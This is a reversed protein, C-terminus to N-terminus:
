EDIGSGELVDFANESDANIGKANEGIKELSKMIDNMLAQQREEEEKKQRAFEELEKAKQEALLEEESKKPAQVQSEAASTGNIREEQSLQSKRINEAALAEDIALKELREEELREAERAKAIRAEEEIRQQEEIEDLQDKHAKKLLLVLKIINRKQDSNPELELYTTYSDVADGYMEMEVEVNAMNLYAEPIYDSNLEIVSKFSDHSNKYEGLQQYCNGIKLFFYSLEGVNNNIAEDLILLEDEFLGLINYSEALYKYVNVKPKTILAEEFYSIAESVNNSEFLQLGEDFPSLTFLPSYFLLFISVIFVFKKM